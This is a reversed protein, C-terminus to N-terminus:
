PSAIDLLFRRKSLERAGLRRYFRAADVNWDPTQWQIQRHGNERACRMVAEMLAAGIGASRRGERVFLCDMHLFTRAHWTAYEAAATAYGVPTDGIRAIWAHLRPPTTFLAAALSEVKGVPEYDAREYRAHEACMAVM